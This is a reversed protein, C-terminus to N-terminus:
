KLGYAYIEALACNTDRNSTNIKVKFYRGETPIVGFVQVSQEKKMTFNGVKTWDIGDTSVFFEGSGVDTYNARHLLAFQAFTSTDKADIILEYPM